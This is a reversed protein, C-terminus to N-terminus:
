HEGAIAQFRRVLDLFERRRGDVDAGVGEGALELVAALSANGRHESGRLIMGFAAVSAAFKFDESAQGYRRGQDRVPVEILRSTEGDPLKYRLKVFLLEGSASEPTLAAGPAPAPAAARADAKKQYRLNPGAADAAVEVAGVPVVEYFATVTHGAGIEGADKRDDDFDRHALVRNEYGVLRYRAVAAPNFEIQIKVDKAITLLTGAMEEVLVRRGEALSDIYSYNGNGKDALQEMTADKLNGTGVGLVSLFVGGRAREQILAVLASSDTIGVNFDGDTALIVRNTGGKIFNAQAVDYALQIGAGGNTSGGSQLRELAGLIEAKRDGPTAPLVLGSAGAYVAIAVHDGENLKEVLQKLCEKLLPLKNEPTMSGSVDVLFVLNSPPRKEIDVERGKLAVRVLRHRGQWPCEAAEVAVAFPHEGEPKPYEYKFYNVMEEIRVADRPPRAGQNLFRRVNAYSATDVDISFTSLPDRAVEVFANELLQQYGETGPAEAPPLPRAEPAPTGGDLGGPGFPDSVRRRVGGAAGDRSAELERLGIGGKRFRDSDPSDAPAAARPAPALQMGRAEASKPSAAALETEQFFEKETRQRNAEGDLVELGAIRNEAKDRRLTSDYTQRQPPPASTAAIPARDAEPAAGNARAGSAPAPSTAIAGAAAPADARLEENVPQGQLKSADAPESLPARAVREGAPTSGSGAPAQGGYRQWVFLGVALLACAALGALSAARFSLIGRRPAEANAEIAQRQVATLAPMPERGLGDGLQAALHRVEGVYGRLEASAELEREVARREDGELEGLAYATLRPDDASTPTQKPNENM